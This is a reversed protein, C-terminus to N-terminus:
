EARSLWQEAPHSPDHRRRQVRVYRALADVDAPSVSEAWYGVQWVLQTPFTSHFNIERAVAGKLQKVATALAVTPALHVLLHVHDDNMRTALLDCTLKQAQWEFLRALETDFREEILPRRAATSWVCHVILRSPSHQTM